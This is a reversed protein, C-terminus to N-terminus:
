EGKVSNSTVYEVKQDRTRANVDAGARLLLEVSKRNGTEIAMMLPTRGDDARADVGAGAGVLLRVVQANGKTAATM